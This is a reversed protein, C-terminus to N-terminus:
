ATPAPRCLLPAASPDGASVAVVLSALTNPRRSSTRWRAALVMRAVRGCMVLFHVEAVRRTLCVVLVPDPVLRRVRVQYEVSCDLLQL